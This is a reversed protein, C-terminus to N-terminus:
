KLKREKSAYSLIEPEDSVKGSGVKSNDREGIFEWERQHSHHKSALVQSSPTNLATAM